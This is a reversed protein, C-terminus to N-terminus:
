WFYHLKSFSFRFYHLSPRYRKIVCIMLRDYSDFLYILEGFAQNAEAYLFLCIFQTQTRLIAMEFVEKRNKQEIERARIRNAPSSGVYQYSIHSLTKLVDIFRHHLHAEFVINSLMKLNRSYKTIWQIFKFSVKHAERTAWLTFHRGAIHSVQNQDRPWSSGRSFSIAVWELIRAQLIGRVSSGSPSCDVPDCLTPCSQAVESESELPIYLKVQRYIKKVEEGVNVQIKQYWHPQSFKIELFQHNKQVKFLWTYSCPKTYTKGGKDLYRKKRFSLSEQLCNSIGKM